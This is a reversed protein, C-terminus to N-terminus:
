LVADGLVVDHLDHVQESLFPQEDVGAPAAAADGEGTGRGGDVDPMHDADGFLRAYQYLAEIRGALARDRAGAAKGADQRLGVGREVFDEVSEGEGVQDFSRPAKRVDKM